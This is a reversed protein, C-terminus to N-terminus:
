KLFDEALKQKQEETLYDARNVVGLAKRLGLFYNETAKHEAQKIREKLAAIDSPLM